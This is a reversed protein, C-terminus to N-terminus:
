FTGPWAAWLIPFGPCRFSTIRQTTFCSIMREAGSPQVGGVDVGSRPHMTLSKVLEKSVNPLAQLGSDIDKIWANIYPKLFPNLTFLASQVTSLQGAAEKDLLTKLSDRLRSFQYPVSLSKSLGSGELLGTNKLYWTSDNRIMNDYIFNPTTGALKIDYDNVDLLAPTKSLVYQETLVHKV